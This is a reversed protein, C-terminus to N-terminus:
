KAEEKEKKPPLRGTQVWLVAEAEDTFTIDIKTQSRLSVGWFHTNARFGEMVVVVRKATFDGAENLIEIDNTAHFVLGSYTRLTKVSSEKKARRGNATSFRM